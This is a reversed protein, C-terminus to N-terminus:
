DEMMDAYEERDMQSGLPILIFRGGLPSAWIGGSLGLEGFAQLEIWRMQPDEDDPYEVWSPRPKM